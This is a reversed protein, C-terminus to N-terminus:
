LGDLPGQRNPVPKEFSVPDCCRVPSRVVSPFDAEATFQEQFQQNVTNNLLFFGILSSVFSGPQRGPKCKANLQEDTNRTLHL